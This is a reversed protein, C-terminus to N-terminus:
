YRQYGLKKLQPFFHTTLCKITRYFVKYVAFDFNLSNSIREPRSCEIPKPGIKNSVYYKIRRELYFCNKLSSLYLSQFIIFLPILSM